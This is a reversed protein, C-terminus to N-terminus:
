FRLEQIGSETNKNSFYISLGGDSSVRWAVGGARAVTKAALTRAGEPSSHPEPVVIAGSAMVKGSRDMLVAGDMASIEILRKVETSDLYDAGFACTPLVQALQSPTDRRMGGRTYRAFSSPDDIAFLAGRRHVSHDLCVQFLVTALNRGVGICPDELTTLIHQGDIISWHGRLRIAMLGEASGILIDGSLTRDVFYEGEMGQDLNTSLPLLYDPLIKANRVRREEIPEIARYGVFNLSPDVKIYTSPSSGVFALVRDVSHDDLNIRQDAGHSLFPTESRSIVLTKPIPRNEITLLDLRNCLDLVQGWCDLGTEQRLWVEVAQQQGLANRLTPFDTEEASALNSLKSFFSDLRVSKPSRSSPAVTGGMAEIQPVVSFSASQIRRGAM